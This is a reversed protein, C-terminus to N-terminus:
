GVCTISVSLFVINLHNFSLRVPHIIQMDTTLHYGATLDETVNTVVTINM